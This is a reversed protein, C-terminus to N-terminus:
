RRSSKGLLMLVGMLGVLFFVVGVATYPGEGVGNAVNGTMSSISFIASIALSAVTAGIAAYHRKHATNEVRSRKLKVKGKMM